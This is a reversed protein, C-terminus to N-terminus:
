RSGTRLPNLPSLIPHKLPPIKVEFKELELGQNPMWGEGHEPTQWQGTHSAAGKPSYPPTLPLLSLGHGEEEEEPAAMDEITLLNVGKIVDVSEGNNNSSSVSVAVESEHRLRGKDEVKTNAPTALEGISAIEGTVNEQDASNATHEDEAEEGTTSATSATSAESSLDADVAGHARPRELPDTSADAAMGPPAAALSAEIPTFKQIETRFDADFLTFSKPNVPNGPRKPEKKQEAGKIRNNHTILETTQRNLKSMLTTCSPIHGYPAMVGISESAFLRLNVDPANVLSLLCTITRDCGPESISVLAKALPLKFPSDNECEDLVDSLQDIIQMDGKTGLETLSEIVLMRVVFSEDRLHKCLAAIVEANGPQAIRRLSSITTHRVEPDENELESILPRIAWLDDNKVVAPVASVAALRAYRPLEDSEKFVESMVAALVDPDSKEAVTVLLELAKQRSYTNYDTCMHGLAAIVERRGDFDRASHMPILRELADLAASRVAADPDHLLQVVAILSKRDGVRGCHSLRQMLDMKQTSSNDPYALRRIISAQNGSPADRYVQKVLRARQESRSVIADEERTGAANAAPAQM